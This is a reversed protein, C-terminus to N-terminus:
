HGFWVGVDHMVRNAAISGHPYAQLSRPIGIATARWWLWRCQGAGGCRSCFLVLVLVFVAFLDVSEFKKELFYQQLPVAANLCQLISAMYCTNGLNKLGVKGVDEGDAKESKNWASASGAKKCYTKPPIIDDGYISVDQVIKETDYM